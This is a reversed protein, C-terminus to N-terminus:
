RQWKWLHTCRFQFALRLDAMQEQRQVESFIQYTNDSGVARNGSGSNSKANRGM